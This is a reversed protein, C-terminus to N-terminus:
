DRGMERRFERRLKERGRLRVIGVFSVFGVAWIV